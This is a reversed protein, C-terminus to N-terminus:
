GEMLLKKEKHEVLQSKEAIHKQLAESAVDVVAKGEQKAIDYLKKYTANEIALLALDVQADNKEM